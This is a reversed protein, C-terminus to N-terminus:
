IKKYSTTISTYNNNILANMLTLRLTSIVSVNSYKSIINSLREMMDKKNGIDFKYRYKFTCSNLRYSLWSFICYTPKQPIVTYRVQVGYSSIFSYILLYRYQKM